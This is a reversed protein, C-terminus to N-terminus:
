AMGPAPAAVVRVALAVAAPAVPVAAVEVFEAAQSNLERNGWAGRSYAHPMKEGM